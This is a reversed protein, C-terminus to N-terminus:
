PMLRLFIMWCLEWLLKKSIVQQSVFGYYYLAKKIPELCLHYHLAFAICFHSFNEECYHSAIRIKIENECRMRMECNKASKRMKVCKQM